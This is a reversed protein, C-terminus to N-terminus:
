FKKEMIVHTKRLGLAKMDAEWGFRCVVEIGALGAGRAYAELVVWLPLWSARDRGAAHTVVLTNETTMTLIAGLPKDQWVVWLQRREEECDSWLESTTWKGTRCFSKFHWDLPGVWLSLDEIKVPIAVPNGRGM